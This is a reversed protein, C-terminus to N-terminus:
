RSCLSDYGSPTAVPIPDILPFLNLSLNLSTHFLLMGLISQAAANYIWVAIIRLAVTLLLFSWLPMLYQSLGLKQGIEGAFRTLRGAQTVGLVAEIKPAL